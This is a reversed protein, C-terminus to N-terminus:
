GTGAPVTRLLVSTTLHSRVDVFHRGYGDFYLPLRSQVASDLLRHFEAAAMQNTPDPTM